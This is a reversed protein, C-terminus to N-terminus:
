KKRMQNVKDDAVTPWTRRITTKSFLSPCENPYQIKLTELTKWAEDYHGIYKTINEASSYGADISSLQFLANFIRFMQRGYECTVLVVRGTTKDKFKIQKSLDVIEDWMKEAEVKEAVIITAKKADKPLAPFTIYEDRVWMAFVDSPYAASRMGRLTAKESLLAIKRFKAADNKSLKLVNRAYRNFISEESETPHNAWQAMVWANLECWLESKPYPGEWGGGRSWTWMGVMKGTAYLEKMNWIKGADKRYQHEEFGDIVGHAVYNPFAGKGEYERACQVEVLQQHRGLGLVKSFADGRHFDDECHKISIVLNKHPEITNTIYEYKKIDTDFVWWTRFILKKNLKVCIEDRLINMLPIICKDANYKDQINGKHYPADELYTEGIRVVIGDMQPFQVFMQHIQFRLLRETLTDLPNGFTKEIGYKEILRKPFLVLDSMAYVDIGHKKCNTYLSDLRHAKKEVWARDASGNPLINPDLGDWNIALMPSDFLFYSKSNYGMSKLVDPDNFKSVYLADGPNNHVMDMIYPLPKSQALAFTAFLLFSLFVATNKKM